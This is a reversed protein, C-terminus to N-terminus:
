SKRDFGDQTMPYLQGGHGVCRSEAMSYRCSVDSGHRVLLHRGIVGRRLEV